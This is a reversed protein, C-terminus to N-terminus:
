WKMCYHCPCGIANQLWQIGKNVYVSSFTIDMNCIKRFFNPM